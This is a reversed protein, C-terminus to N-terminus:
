RRPSLAALRASRTAPVLLAVFTVGCALALNLALSRGGSAIIEVIIVALYPLALAGAVVLPRATRRFVVGVGVLAPLLAPVALWAPLATLAWATLAATMGVFAWACALHLRRAAATSM